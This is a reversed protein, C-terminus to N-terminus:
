AVLNIFLDYIYFELLIEMLLQGSTIIYIYLTAM